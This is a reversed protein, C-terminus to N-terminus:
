SWPGLADAAGRTRAGGGLHLGRREIGQCYKSIRLIQADFRNLITCVWRPVTENFKVEVVNMTPPVIFAGKTRMRRLDLGIDRCRLNRDITVRLDRKYRGFYAARNYAVVLRPALRQSRVLFAVEDLVPDAGGRYRGSEIEEMVTLAAELPLETRRKQVTLNTRQKIEVFASDPQEGYTRVRVKRRFKEGDIKEWYCRLDSSDYYLSAVKYYGDSNATLHVRVM